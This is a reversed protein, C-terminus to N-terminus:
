ISLQGMFDLFSHVNFLFKLTLYSYWRSNELYFIFNVTWSCIPWLYRISINNFVHYEWFLDIELTFCNTIKSARGILHITVQVSWPSYSEWSKNVTQSTHHTVIYWQVLYSITFLIQKYNNLNETMSSPKSTKSKIGRSNKAITNIQKYLNSSSYM